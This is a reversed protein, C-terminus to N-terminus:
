GLETVNSDNKPGRLFVSKGGRGGNLVITYDIGKYKFKNGGLNEKLALLIEKQRDKVAQIESEKSKISEEAALFESFLEISTSM